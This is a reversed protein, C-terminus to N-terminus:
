DEKSLRAILYNIDDHLKRLNKSDRIDKKLLNTCRFAHFICRPSSILLYKIQYEFIKTQLDDQVKINILGDDWINQRLASLAIYLDTRENKYSEKQREAKSFIKHIINLSIVSIAFSMIGLVDAIYSVIKWDWQM